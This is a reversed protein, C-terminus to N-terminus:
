ESRLAVLPDVKTARRAPIWCAVLAVFILLLAIGAFTLPDTASVGFLLTKLMRTVAFATLLGAAIGVLALRMGQGIVLKRVDSAQAGLALRIGIERTRASVSYAMVGYVGIGALALALAAFAGLLVAIFRTRSTVDAVRERMTQIATLPVNRDLALVERQVAATLAATDISSRVTLMRMQDTPQLASVYVDPGVAEELRGYPVDAVVGVIEVFLETTQYKTTVYPRLRKGIPDEGPFFRETAAKNIIAVRPAGARDQATFVRGRLLAIGLTRFYDPSVSHYGVGARNIDARGEIDIVARAYRGLLPTNRSFSAAEVGPLAQVRALAQEYFEPKADRSYVTMTLLNEPAFGLNVSQLRLLSNIMLGAGVLLALSLAIEGVVLVNRVSLKRRGHFGMVSGGVGEKLAENVNIFSSQLAPLLGFLLGTLLALAFNFGLVRWDLNVTFFDFTHSYSTWFQTNDRPRIRMLLAVGWRALLVGLAGGVLALLLSEAGLQRLLRQRSAGLAARLALERRRAVARALLLNAVNACAILLALGVAALLLLFSTKLAPDVKASQFPELVPVKANGPVNDPPGPYKQEIQASVRQMDAQAQALTVSDKLRAIVQFWHDDPHTLITRVFKPAAMMPLWVDATGSQGRFGPPLVGVITFAQKDLEIAKGVVQPDGGYRRQWLGHGLLAVEGADEATFSRGVITNVGLLPFYGDSVMEMQLQEPADTGTLNYPSQNFGVVEAFSRNQDRLMEFRPYSWISPLMGKAPDPPTRFVKVLQESERYPLPRLLLANVVSFIATNAGIGLSLTLVAILTFGPNKLLTQAGYRLDQRLDAIINSRRDTGLPIPEQKIQQESRQLERRLFESGRLEALTQQFAEAESAGSALLAAYCDDLDQALEEVIAAERTPTLRLNALRTRIEAKWEPM